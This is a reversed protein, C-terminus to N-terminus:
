LAERKMKWENIIMDRYHTIEPNHHLNAAMALMSLAEEPRGKMEAVLALNYWLKAQTAPKAEHLLKKWLKVADEWNRFKVLTTAERFEDSGGGFYYRVVTKYSPLVLRAFHEGTVYGAREAFSEISPLKKEVIKRTQGDVEYVISDNTWKELLIRQGAPDYIRWGARVAMTFDAKQMIQYQVNYLLTKSWVKNKNESVRRRYESYQIDTQYGITELTVLIDSAKENCFKKVVDWSLPPPFTDVPLNITDLWRINGSLFFRDADALHNLFGFVAREGALIHVGQEMKGGLKTRDNLLYDRENASVRHLITITDINDPFEIQPPQFLDVVIERQSICSSAVGTLIVLLVWVTKYGKKEGM